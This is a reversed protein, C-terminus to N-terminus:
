PEWESSLSETLVEKLRFLARGHRMSAASDTLGLAEAVERNGMGEFHRMLIVERDESSLRNVASEVRRQLEDRMLIRSPSGHGGLLSEALAMSSEAPFVSEMKTSRCKADLHRRHLMLLRDMALGRLWVFLSVQPSELYKQVRNAADVYTEQLVDSPDIRRAARPDMRLRVMRQLRPRYHDFLRVLAQADGTSLERM